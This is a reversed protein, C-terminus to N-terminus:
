PYRPEGCRPDVLDTPEGPICATIFAPAGTTRTQQSVCHQRTPYDFSGAGCPWGPECQERFWSGPGAFGECFRQGLPEFELCRSYPPDAGAPILETGTFRACDADTECRGLGVWQFQLGVCSEPRGDAPNGERDPEGSVCRDLLGFTHACVFVSTGDQCGALGALLLAILAADGQSSRGCDGATTNSNRM